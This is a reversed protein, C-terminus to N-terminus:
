NAQVTLTVSASDNGAVPDSGNSRVRATMVIDVDATISTSATLEGAQATITAVGHSLATVTGNENVSLVSPASSRWSVSPFDTSSGDPFVLHLQTQSGVATLVPSDVMVGLEAVDPSLPGVGTCAAGLLAGTTVIGRITRMQNGKM